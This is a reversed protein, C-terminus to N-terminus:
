GGGFRCGTDPAPAYKPVKTAITHGKEGFFDIHGAGTFPIEDFRGGDPFPPRPFFGSIGPL